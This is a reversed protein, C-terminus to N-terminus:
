KTPKKVSKKAVAKIVPASKKTSVQKKVFQQKKTAAKVAAAVPAPASVTVVPVPEVKYPAAHPAVAPASIEPTAKGTFFNMIAKLM